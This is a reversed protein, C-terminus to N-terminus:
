ESDKADSGASFNLIGDDMLDAIIDEMKRGTKEAIAQTEIRDAHDRATQAKTADGPQDRSELVSALGRWNEPNDADSATLEKWIELAGSFDGERALKEARQVRQESSESSSAQKMLADLDDDEKPSEDQTTEASEDTDDETVADDDLDDFDDLDDDALSEAAEKAKKEAEKVKKEAEKIKKEADKAKKEADKAKKEADRAKQALRFAVDQPIKKAMSVEFRQSYTDCKITTWSSIGPRPPFNM